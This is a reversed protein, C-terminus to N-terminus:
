SVSIEHPMAGYKMTVEALVDSLTKYSGDELNKYEIGIKKLESCITDCDEISFMKTLKEQTM